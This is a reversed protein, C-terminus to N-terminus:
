GGWVESIKDKIKKEFIEILQKNSDVLKQEEEIQAVIEKQIEIPPLPIKILKLEKGSIFPMTSTSSKSLVVKRILETNLINSLYFKNLINQDKIIMRMVNWSFTFKDGFNINSAYGFRAGINSYLVDDKKPKYKEAINEYEEETIYKLKDFNIIGNFINNAQLVKVGEDVYNLKDVATNIGQVFDVVKKLEVVDWEPNIKFSPKYSEVVKKAGDIINQYSEIEEVIREQVELPPLPIKIRSIDSLKLSPYAQNPTLSKADIQCLMHFLFRPNLIKEKANITALHSAVYGEKSIMVRHNLFTSAGSKPFLITSKPFSNLKKESVALDNVYDKSENLNLSIHVKGVDATRYFPYKGNKFYKDGQPASNGSSIEAVEGLEVLDWNGDYVVAEKYRDGSLNYDQEAVKDKHVIHAITKEFKELKPEVGELVANQFEKLVELALPLDNEKIERRQAGLNYGDASVKVFLVEKSKKAIKKDLFLISTKVGSYPTLYLILQAAVVPSYV